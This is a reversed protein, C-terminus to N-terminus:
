RAASPASPARLSPKRHIPLDLSQAKGTCRRALSRQPDRTLRDRPADMYFVVVGGGDGTARWERLGSFSVMNSPDVPGASVNSPPENQLDKLERAVRKFAMADLSNHWVRAARFLVRQGKVGKTNM